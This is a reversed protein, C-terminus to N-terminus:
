ALLCTIVRKNIQFFERVRHLDATGGAGRGDQSSSLLWAPSGSSSTMWSSLPMASLVTGRNPESGHSAM